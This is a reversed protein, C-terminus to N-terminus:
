AAIRCTTGNDNAAPTRSQPNLRKTVHQWAADFRGSHHLSRWTLVAQGGEHNWRQGSLKMRRTVLTKNAAEVIGSGVPRSLDRWRRYAMRRRNNEFYTVVERLTAAHAATKARGRHYRLSRLVKDAGQLDDILLRKYRRYWAEGKDGIADRAKALHQCAHWYDVLTHETVGELWDWNTRAGDAVAVIDLDPAMRRVHALEETLQEKLTVKNKEPMRGLATTALREGDGDFWSVTGCSAERYRTTLVGNTTERVPVMVGDLSVCAGVAGVPIGEDARIEDLAEDRVEEWAAATGRALRQLTSQTLSMGGMRQCVERSACAPLQSYLFVALEGAPETFYDMVLGVEEDVPVVSASSARRYRHREYTVPGFVSMVEKRTKAVRTFLKGDREVTPKAIELGEIHRGLAVCGTENFLGRLFRELAGVRAPLGDDGILALGDIITAMAEIASAKQAADCSVACSESSRVVPFSSASM